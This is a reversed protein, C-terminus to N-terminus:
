QKIHEQMIDFKAETIAVLIKKAMATLTTHLEALAKDTGKNGLDAFRKEIDIEKNVKDAVENVVTSITDLKGTVEEALDSTKGLSAVAEKVQDIKPQILKIVEQMEKAESERNSFEDFKSALEKIQSEVGSISTSYDKTKQGKIARLIEEHKGDMEDLKELKELSDLKKLETMIPNIDVGESKTEPKEAEEYDLLKLVVDKATQDGKLLVNWIMKALEVMEEKKMGGAMKVGSPLSLGPGTHQIYPDDAVCQGVMQFEATSSNKFRVAFFGLTDLETAVLEIYYLGPQNTADVEVLSGSTAVPTAGNKSIYGTGTQGTKATIGDTADVLHLYVRRRAAVSESQKYLYMM